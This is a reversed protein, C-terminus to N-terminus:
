VQHLSFKWFTLCANYFHYLLIHILSLVYLNFSISYNSPEFILCLSGQLCLWISFLCGTLVRFNLGSSQMVYPLESGNSVWYSILVIICQWVNLNHYKRYFRWQFWHTYTIPRGYAGSTLWKKLFLVMVM